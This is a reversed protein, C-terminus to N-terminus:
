EYDVVDVWSLLLEREHENGKVSQSAAVIPMWKQIYQKATNSKKSFLDLYTKAGEEDGNLWFLLYTRAADASANGQTAHAWDIIYPTGSNDIIINSPNFDGHCVKKHKPMGELRTHLEYRTTADLTTESIKRNMKDKLKNLLPCTKAHVELQLDVLLELYENKKEPFEEMLQALTKGEIYELVIAWKGDVMTIELICPIHLGTEEIRAQNLAENLVDAKSYDHDFVKVCTNGDRYITKHNSVTIVQNLTM